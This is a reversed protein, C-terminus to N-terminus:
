DGAYEPFLKDLTDKKEFMHSITDNIKNTPILLMQGDSVLWIGKEPYDSADIDVEPTSLYDHFKSRMM